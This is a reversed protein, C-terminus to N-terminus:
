KTTTMGVGALLRESVEWLRRAAEPDMSERSSRAPRCKVYYEGTHSAAEPATALYIQTKAGAEPSIAFLGAVSMIASVARSNNHGFGSAVFGPHLCNVTVNRIGREALRRAQEKTFLINALKSRCYSVRTSYGRELMVDNFDIQGGRKHANSAVNIIRAAGHKDATQCVLDLLESTLLFYALHNLAFTLEFGDVTVQRDVFMAGANNLLVDLRDTRARVDAALKRVQAMSSLDAILLEVAIGPHAAKITEVLASGRHSDRAVLLLRCGTKALELATVRGIGQTIGTILCTRGALSWPTNPPASSM